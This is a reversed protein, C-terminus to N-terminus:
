IIHLHPPILISNISQFIFSGASLSALMLSLAIGVWLLVEKLIFWIRAKPQINKQDIHELIKKHLPINNMTNKLHNKLVILLPQM